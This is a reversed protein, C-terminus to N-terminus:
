DENLAEMNTVVNIDSNEKAFKCLSEFNDIDWYWKDLGYGVDEKRLISHFILIIISEEPMKNILYKVQSYSTKNTITIGYFFRTKQSNVISRKNLRYFLYKSKFINMLVYLCSYMFGERRVQRGSRIYEIEKGIMTDIDLTEEETLKSFPSAFGISDTKIGWDGLIKIGEKVDSMSNQHKNGHCAIEYGRSQIDKINEVTMPLGGASLFNNYDSPHLIFDTAINITAKLGYRDLVTIANDFTDKRGDDFSFVIKKM